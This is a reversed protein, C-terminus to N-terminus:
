AELIEEVTKLLRKKGFMLSWRSGGCQQWLVASRIGCFLMTRVRSINTTQTLYEQNGEVKVRPEITGVTDVYLGSLRDLFSTNSIDHIDFESSIATLGDRIKEMMGQEKMLKNELHTLTMAYRTIEMDAREVKRMFLRKLQNLGPILNRYGDYVAVVSDADMQFLSYIGTSATTEEWNGRRAIRQVQISNQMLGALALIQDHEKSM